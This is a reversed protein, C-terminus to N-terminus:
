KDVHNAGVFKLQSLKIIVPGPNDERGRNKGKGTTRKRNSSNSNEDKKKSGGQPRKQSSVEEMTQEPSTPIDSNDRIAVPDTCDTGTDVLPVDVQQGVMISENCEAVPRPEGRTPSVDPNLWSTADLTVTVTNEVPPTTPKIWETVVTTIAKAVQKVNKALEHCEWVVEEVLAIGREVGQELADALREIYNM